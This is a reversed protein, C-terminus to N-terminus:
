AGITIARLNRRTPIRKTGLLYYEAFAEAARARRRIGLYPWFLRLVQQAPNTGQVEWMYIPKRGPPTNRGNPQYPGRVKGGIVQVLRDLVDRDTSGVRLRISRMRETPVLISGEGEFLGAAWAVDASTM